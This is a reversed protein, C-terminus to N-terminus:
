YGNVMSGLGSLVAYCVWHDRRVKLQPRHEGIQRLVSDHMRFWPSVVVKSTVINRFLYVNPM